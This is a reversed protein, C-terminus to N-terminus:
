PIRPGLITYGRQNSSLIWGDRALAALAQRIVSRACSFQEQVDREASTSSSSPSPSPSPSSSNGSM